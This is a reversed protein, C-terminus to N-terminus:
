LTVEGQQTFKVANGLLNSLIQRLKGEEALVNRPVDDSWDFYLALGKDTARLSFMEELGYLLDYLDFIREQLAVQGAEIKSMELVENILGLLHEGSRTIVGLNEQQEGTLSSDRDMLQTFGLIANLPTRLEHSMNALFISKAQNAAEAERRAKELETLDYYIAIFGLSEGGVIIPLALLEVDVFTGDKRTRKTTVQVRDHELAQKTYGLAEAQISEDKAVLDDLPAGVAEQSSYGFLSEAMPNWSVVVGALDATVVAVPNNVFL